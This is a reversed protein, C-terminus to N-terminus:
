RLIVKSEQLEQCDESLINRPGKYDTDKTERKRGLAM